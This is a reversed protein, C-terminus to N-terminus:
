HHTYKRKLRNAEKSGIQGRAKAYEIMEEMGKNYKSGFKRKVDRIDMEMAKGFKGRKILDEQMDRWQKASTSGGWSATKMHDATEMWTAPGTYHSVNVGTNKYSSYAPMHNVQGGTSLDRTNGYGGGGQASLGLVDIWNNSDLVYTYLNPNGGELGIPDQSIYSGSSPDYYRFRNYYLGTESDQYQGQYRFPCENLSRGAFTRVRGYIDLQAEWTKNGDSDYMQIPTGLYDTVISQSGRDTIRATPVFSGEECVWTIVDILPEKPTVSWEHLPVNGDWLWQTRRHKVEEWFEDAM